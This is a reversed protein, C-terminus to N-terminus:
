LAGIIASPKFTSARVFREAAKAAALNINRVNLVSTYSVPNLHSLFNKYFSQALNRKITQIAV